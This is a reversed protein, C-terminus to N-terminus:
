GNHYFLYCFSFVFDKFGNFRPLTIRRLFLLYDIIWYNQKDRAETPKIESM